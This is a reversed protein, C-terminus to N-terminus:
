AALRAPDLVQGFAAVTPAHRVAPLRQMQIGGAEIVEQTLTLPALVSQEQSQGQAASLLGLWLFLIFLPLSRVMAALTLHYVSFSREWVTMARSTRAVQRPAHPHRHGPRATPALKGAGTMRTDHGAGRAPGAARGLAHRHRGDVDKGIDAGGTTSPRSVGAWSVTAVVAGGLGTINVGTCVPWAMVPTTHPRTSLKLRWARRIRIAMVGRVTM